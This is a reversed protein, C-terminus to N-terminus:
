NCDKAHDIDAQTYRFTMEFHNNDIKKCEFRNIDRVGGFSHNDYLTDCKKVGNDKTFFIVNPYKTSVSPTQTFSVGCFVDDKVGELEKETVVTDLITLNFGERANEYSIDFPTENIYIWKIKIITGECDRCCTSYTCTIFISIGIALYRMWTIKRQM